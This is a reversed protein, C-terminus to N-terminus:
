AGESATQCSKELIEKQTLGISQRAHHSGLDYGAWYAISDSKFIEEEARSFPFDITWYRRGIYYGFAFATREVESTRLCNVGEGVKPPTYPHERM